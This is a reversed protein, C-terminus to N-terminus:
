TMPHYHRCGAECRQGKDGTQWQKVMETAEYANLKVLERVKYCVDKLFHLIIKESKRYEICNRENLSLNFFKANQELLMNDEHLSTPYKSLREDAM